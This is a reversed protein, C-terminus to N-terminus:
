DACISQEIHATWQAQSHPQLEAAKACSPLLAITLLGAFMAASSLWFKWTDFSPDLHTVGRQKLARLSGRRIVESSHYADRGACKGSWAIPGRTVM